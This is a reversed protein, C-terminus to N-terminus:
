KQLIKSLGQYAFSAGIFFLVSNIVSVSVAIITTPFIINQFMLYGYMEIPIEAISLIFGVIILMGGVRVNIENYINGIRYVGLIMLINGLDPVLSVSMNILYFSLPFVPQITPTSMVYTKGVFSITTYIDYFIVLFLLVYGIIIVNVGLYGIGLYKYFNRLVKFGSRFKALSLFYLIFAILIVLSGALSYILGQYILSKSHVFLAFLLLLLAGAELLVQSVVLFSLASRVKGLGDFENQM